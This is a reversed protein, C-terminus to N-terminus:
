FCESRGDTLHLIQPPILKMRAACLANQHKAPFSVELKVMLYCVPVFIFTQQLLFNCKQTRKIGSQRLKVCETDWVIQLLYRCDLVFVCLYIFLFCCCLQLLIFSTIFGALLSMRYYSVCWKWLQLWDMDNHHIQTTTCILPTGSWGFIGGQNTRM